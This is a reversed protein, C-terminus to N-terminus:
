ISFPDNAVLSNLILANYTGLVGLYGTALTTVVDM